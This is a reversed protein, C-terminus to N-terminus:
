VRNATLINLSRVFSIQEMHGQQAEGLRDASSITDAVGLKEQSAQFQNM